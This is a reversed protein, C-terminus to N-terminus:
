RSLDGGAPKRTLRLYRLRAYQRIRQPNLLMPTGVPVMETEESSLAFVDLARSQSVKDILLGSKWATLTRLYQKSVPLSVKPKSM